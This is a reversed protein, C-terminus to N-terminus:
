QGSAEPAPNILQCEAFKIQLTLAQDFFARGATFGKSSVETVRAYFSKDTNKYLCLHSGNKKMYLQIKTNKECTFVAGEKLHFQNLRPM